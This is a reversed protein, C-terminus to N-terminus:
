ILICHQYISNRRCSQSACGPTHSNLSSTLLENLHALDLMETGYTFSFEGHPFGRFLFRVARFSM